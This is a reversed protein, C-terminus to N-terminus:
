PRNGTGMVVFCSTIAVLASHALRTSRHSRLPSLASFNARRSPYLGFCSYHHRQFSRASRGECGESDDNVSAGRKRGTWTTVSADAIANSGSSIASGLPRTTRTRGPKSGAM